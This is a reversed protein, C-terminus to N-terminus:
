GAHRDTAIPVLVFVHGLTGLDIPPKLWARRYMLPDTQENHVAVVEAVVFDHAQEPYNRDTLYAQDGVTLSKDRGVLVTFRDKSVGWHIHADIAHRTAEPQLPGIQVQLTTGPASILRVTASVPTTKVILGVLHVQHVVAMGRDIGDSRGVDITIGSGPVTDIVAARQLQYGALKFQRIQSLQAILRHAEGLQRRLKRNNLLAQQYAGTDTAESETPGRVQQSLRTLMRVLPSTVWQLVDAPRDAIRRAASDPLLSAVILLMVIAALVRRPTFITRRM